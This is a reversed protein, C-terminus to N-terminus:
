HPSVPPQQFSLELHDAEPGVASIEFVWRGPMHFKFGDSRYEGNGLERHEPATMMGHGHEPMTADLRLAAGVVREGTDVRTVRTNVSFLQGVRPAAPDLRLTFDYTGSAGRGSLSPAPESAATPSPGEGQKAVSKQCRGLSLVLLAAGAGHHLRTVYHRFHRRRFRM